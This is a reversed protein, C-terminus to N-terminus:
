RLADAVERYIQLTRLATRQWSFERARERGARRLEDRLPADQWLETIAAAIAGADHPDFYRAANAGTEPLAAANSCAVPCGAAMAEVIPMGFGEFLSPFIMVRAGAILAPMDDDDVFGLWSVDSGLNRERVAATLDVAIRTAAGTLVLHPREASPIRALADLLRLHNKHPWLNAPYIAYDSPLRHRNRVRQADAASVPAAFRAALGLPVVRLADRSINYRELLSRGTFESIAIVRVARRASRPYLARRADLEGADFLEPYYEHQLDAVTLVNTLHEVAADIYGPFSHVFDVKIAAAADSRRPAVVQRQLNAGRLGALDAANATSHLLVYQTDRDLRLLHTVLERFYPELGGTAGGPVVFLGNLGVRLPRAARQVTARQCVDGYLQDLREASPTWEYRAAAARAATGMRERAAPDRLLEVVRRAFDTPDDAIHFDTGSRGDLGEAGITTSVVPRQMAMAELIKLRTGSAFRLPCIFVDAAALHPRVDPVFGTVTVSPGALARVDAPPDAGVIDLRADREERLVLPWVARVFFIIGDRNPPHNLTATFVVRKTSPAATPQFYSLDVGNPVVAIHPHGTLRALVDRDADSMAVLADFARLHRQEYAAFRASEYLARGRDIAGAGTRFRRWWVLTKIDQVVLIKPGTFAIQSAWRANDSCEIQLLDYPGAALARQLPAHLNALTLEGLTAERPLWGLQARAYTRALAALRAPDRRALDVARGITTTGPVPAQATSDYVEVREVMQALTTAAARHAASHVNSVVTFRHRKALARLLAFM